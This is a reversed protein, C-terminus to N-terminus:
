LRNFPEQRHYLRQANLAAKSRIELYSEESFYATHPNIMIRSQMPNAADRWAAILQCQRPPEDPLVDLAVQSLHNTGLATYLM